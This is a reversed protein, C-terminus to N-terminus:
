QIHQKLFVIHKIGGLIYANALLPFGNSQEKILMIEKLSYKNLGDVHTVLAKKTISDYIGLIMCQGSGFTGLVPYDSYPYAIALEDV